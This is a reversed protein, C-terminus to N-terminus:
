SPSINSGWGVGIMIFKKSRLRVRCLLPLPERTSEEGHIVDWPLGRRAEGQSIPPFSLEFSAVGVPFSVSAPALPRALSQMYIVAESGCARVRVCRTSDVQRTEQPM